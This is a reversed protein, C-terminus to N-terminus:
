PKTNLTKFNEMSSFIRFTVPKAKNEVTNLTNPLSQDENNQGYMALLEVPDPCISELRATSSSSRSRSRSRSSVVVVVVVVGAVEVVVGPVVVVAVVAVVVAVLIGPSPPQPVPIPFMYIIIYIYIIQQIYVHIVVHVFMNWYAYAIYLVYQIIVVTSRLVGATPHEKSLKIHRFVRRFGGFLIRNITSSRGCISSPESTAMNGILTGKTAAPARLRRCRSRKCHASSQSTQHLSLRKLPKNNCLLKKEGM